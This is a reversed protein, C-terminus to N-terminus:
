IVRENGGDIPVQAGTTRSFAAGCLTTVLAAVDHSTITTHLVNNKTYDDISMGYNAARSTLVDDSWLGTDFVQNPHVVNVRIGNSGWELAAVRALQTIAAKSASYAAAGPGPAPVNKSGIIVVRGGHLAQALLPQCERLLVVNADLNIAMTRRWEDMPMANIARSKPFIGANLVLMDIGGFAVVGADIAAGIAADDSIDCVVSCVDPRNYINALDPNIDLAIVAAGLRLFAEVCARGIGSAAGTVLVVEGSHVPPTGALRLKAQELEWYEIAFLDADGLPTYGGLQEAASIVPISQRYVDAGIRADKVTRGVTLMGLEPDLIIRPAPDLMTLPTDASAAQTAFWDRYRQAYAAVDRGVLPIQRTRIIHDPTVCGRSSLNEGDPRAAYARTLEDRHSMVIMPVGAAASIHARLTARPSRAAPFPPVTAAAARIRKEAYQEAADVAAIMREYSTQADDGWTFIGHNLLIVGEHQPTLERAFQLACHRALAFGPMVYPVILFREGYLERMYQVAHPTDLLTLVADAHTHDVFTAPIIAHLIAEVSPTPAGADTMATRMANVMAADSLSPLQAMRVLADLRVPAFGRADITGLDHGSGKIYLLTEADGFLNTTQVKVSTNGGGHLVLRQDAGLLRSTYIRLALPTTHQRADADNWRSHM